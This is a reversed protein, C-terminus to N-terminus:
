NESQLPELINWEWNPCRRIKWVVAIAFFSEGWWVIVIRDQCHTTRRLFGEEKMELQAPLCLACIGACFPQWLFILKLFATIELLENGIWIFICPQNACGYVPRHPCFRTSESVVGMGTDQLLNCYVLLM